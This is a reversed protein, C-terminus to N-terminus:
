KRSQSKIKISKDMGKIVASIPRFYKKEPFIYSVNSKLLHSINNTNTEDRKIM